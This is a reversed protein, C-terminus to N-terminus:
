RVGALALDQRSASALATDDSKKKPNKKKKKKLKYLNIVPNEEPNHLLDVEDQSSLFM